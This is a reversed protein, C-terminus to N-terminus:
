RRRSRDAQVLNAALKALHELAYSNAADGTDQLVYYQARYGGRSNHWLDIAEPSAQLTISWRHLGIKDGEEGKEPGGVHALKAETCIRAVIEDFETDGLLRQRRSSKVSHDINWDEKSALVFGSMRAIRAQISHPYFSGMFSM